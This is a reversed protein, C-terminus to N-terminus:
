TAPQPAAQSAPPLWLIPIEAEVEKFEPDGTVVRGGRTKALAAAFCHAYSMQKTAKLAAAEKALPVDAAIAEIPLKALVRDLEPLAVRGHLREIACYLEGVNVATMLAQTDYGALEAFLDRVIEWGSQCELYAVLAHADLVTVM